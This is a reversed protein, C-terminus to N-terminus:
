CGKAFDIWPREHIMWDCRATSLGCPIRNLLRGSMTHFFIAMLIEPNKPNFDEVQLIKPVGWNKRSSFGLLMIRIVVADLEHVRSGPPKSM